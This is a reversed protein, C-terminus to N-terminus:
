PERRRYCREGHRWGRRWGLSVLCRSVRNQDLQTWKSQEIGLAKELVEGVTVDGLKEVHKAIPEEWADAVRREDQQTRAAKLDGEDELWWSANNNYMQVAEAWLQGKDRAITGADIRGCRLPWFRRAGTEDKLYHEANTSGIFISQRPVEAVRSGYPPRFRDTRRSVFAKIKEIEGRQMSALEALEIVWSARVQMAADKTGLEAIDDSFWPSFLVDIATSKGEGQPGELITAHDVKCGPEMVRAVASVFLCRSVNSHYKSKEAGLYTAAFGDLRKVGDWKLGGLYDRIPHFAHEYAVTEVAKGVLSIQVGIGHQQLWETTLVDDQETWPRAVWSGNTKVWPPARLAMTCLAFEDHAIVGDWEQAGRLAVLVNALNAKPSKTPTLQLKSEWGDGGLRAGVEGTVVTM